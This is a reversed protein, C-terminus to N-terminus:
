ALVREAIKIEEGAPKPPAKWMQLKTTAQSAPGALVPAASAAVTPAASAAAVLSPQSAAALVVGGATTASLQLFRRRSFHGKGPVPRM